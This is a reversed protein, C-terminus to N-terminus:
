SCAAHLAAKKILMCAAIGCFLAAAGCFIRPLAAFVRPLAAFIHPLAAFFCAAIGCFFLRRHRLFHAAIGCFIRPLAAFFTVAFIGSDLTQVNGPFIRWAPQRLDQCKRSFYAVLSFLYFSSFFFLVIFIIKKNYIRSYFSESPLIREFHIM